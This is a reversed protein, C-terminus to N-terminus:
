RRRADFPCGCRPRGEKSIVSPLRPSTLVSSRFAVRASVAYLLGSAAGGSTRCCGLQRHHGRWRAYTSGSCSSAGCPHVRLHRDRLRLCTCGRATFNPSSGWRPSQAHPWLRAGSQSFRFHVQGTLASDGMRWARAVGHGWICIGMSPTRGGTRRGAGASPSALASSSPLGTGFGDYWSRKRRSASLWHLTTLVTECCRVPVTVQCM